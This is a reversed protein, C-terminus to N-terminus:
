IKQAQPMTDENSDRSSLKLTQYTSLLEKLHTPWEEGNKGSAPSHSHILHQDLVALATM